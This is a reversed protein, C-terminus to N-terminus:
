KRNGHKLEEEAEKKLEELRQLFSLVSKKKEGGLTEIKIMLKDMNFSNEIHDGHESIIWPDFDDLYLLNGEADASFNVADFDADIDLDEMADRFDRWGPDTVIDRSARRSKVSLDKPPEQNKFYYESARQITIHREDLNVRQMRLVNPESASFHIDPVHRPFLLHLVKHFYFRAKVHSRYKEKTPENIFFKIVWEQREPDIYVEKDMGRGLKEGSKINYPNEKM